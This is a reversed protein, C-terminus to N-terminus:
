CYAGCTRASHHDAPAPQTLCVLQDDTDFSSFWMGKVVFRAKKKNAKIFNNHLVVFQRRRCMDSLRERSHHFVNLGAYQQAGSPFSTAPLLRILAGHSECHYPVEGHSQIIKNGGYQPDCFVKNVVDQDHNGININQVLARFLDITRQNSRVLYFGSNLTRYNAEPQILVDAQAYYRSASLLTRLHHVPDTCWFIDADSLLVDLGSLLASLVARLKNKTIQNFSRPGSRNFQGPHAEDGLQSSLLVSAWGLHHSLNHTRVDLSYVIPAYSINLTDLNCKFNQLFHRYMWNSATVVIIPAKPSTPRFLTTLRVLLLLLLFLPLLARLTTTSRAYRKSRPRLAM